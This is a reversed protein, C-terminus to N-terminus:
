KIDYKLLKDRFTTRKIGLLQAAQSQNGKSKKYAWSIASAEVEEILIDLSIKESDRFDMTQFNIKKLLIDQPLMEKTIVNSDSFAIIRCFTNELQRVNGPWNYETLVDLAEKSFKVENKGTKKAFHELLLPIDEKRDRLPPLSLPIVKLRYFLDERFEGKEVKEFLNVKTAAIIRVDTKLPSVGGVKEFEKEQLVRLLKVQFSLPIDDVDDLFLTGGNALEFRGKKEKIAGTFAGKVHGFLESELLSENLIACSLKIFPKDKRPSNYHIANAVIEKGTGSEGEILVAMETKSITNLQEFLKQMVRSKGIINHFSYIQTLKEKLNVNERELEMIHKVKSVLLLLHDLSFPKTLYDYAGLKMAEVASQITGYGTIMVVFTGPSINKVKQLVEFGDLHPMRIDTIVLDSGFKEVHALAAIPSEFSEVNYGAKHLADTMTIRKIKEDDIVVIRM